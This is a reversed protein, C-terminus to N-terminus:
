STSKRYMGVTTRELEEGRANFFFSITIEDRRLTAQAAKAHAFKMLTSKGGGPKGRIWLLGYHIELKESDEWAKYADHKLLWACTAAHQRKITHRRSDMQEFSLSGWMEQRRSQNSSTEGSRVSTDENTRRSFEPQYFSDLGCVDRSGYKRLLAEMLRELAHEGEGYNNPMYVDLLGFLCYAKDESRKTTRGQVWSMREQIGVKSLEQRRLLVSSSIGTVKKIVGSLTQKTGLCKHQRSFFEVYQPAILEQLTWGRKFWRSDQFVEDETRRMSGEHDRKLDPVDSLYVYCKVAERYWRFM